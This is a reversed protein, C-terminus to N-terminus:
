MTIDLNILIQKCPSATARFRGLWCSEWGVRKLKPEFLVVVVSTDTYGAYDDGHCGDGKTMMM